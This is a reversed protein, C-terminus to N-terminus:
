LMVAVKGVSGLPALPAIWSTTKAFEDSASPDMMVFVAVTIGPAVSVSSMLEFLLEVTIVATLVAASTLMVFVPGAVAVAPVSTVYLIVTVLLPGSPAWFM